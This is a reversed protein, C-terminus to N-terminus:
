AYWRLLENPKNCNLFFIEREKGAKFFISFLFCEFFASLEVDTVKSWSKHRGETLILFALTILHQKNYQVKTGTIIYTLTIAQSILESKLSIQCEDIFKLMQCPWIILHVKRQLVTADLILITPEISNSIHVITQLFSLHHWLSTMMQKIKIFNLCLDVLPMDLSLGFKMIIPCLLASIWLLSTLLSNHFFHINRWQSKSRQGLTVLILLTQGVATLM